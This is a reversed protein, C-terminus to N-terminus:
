TTKTDAEQVDTGGILMQATELDIEVDISATPNVVIELRIRGMEDLVICLQKKGLEVITM